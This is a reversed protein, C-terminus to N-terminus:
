AVRKQRVHYLHLPVGCDIIKGGDRYCEFGLHYVLLDCDIGRALAILPPVLEPPPRISYIVDTNRYLALSPCFIDDREIRVPGPLDPVRIDTGLVPVGAVLLLEAATINDGIGVETASRYNRAIYEGICREIRKYESM